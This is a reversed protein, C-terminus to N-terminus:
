QRGRPAAPGEDGPAGARASRSRLRALQQEVFPPILLSDAIAALEEAERWAEELAALEGDLARRESEEHLAMEVALRQSPALEVLPVGTEARRKTGSEAVSRFLAAADLGAELRRVATAVQVKDGGAWNLAPLLVRAARFADESMVDDVGERHKIRLAWPLSADGGRTVAVSGLDRRRVQLPPESGRPIRAVIRNRWYHNAGLAAVAIGARLTLGAVSLFAGTVAGVRLADSAFTHAGQVVVALAHRRRFSRGYRWVALEPRLAPGVRVLEVDDPLRTMGINDTSARLRTGRFRRECEEIAEWREEFPALCWRGCRGCVVWLRGREPDFALRRGIAFAEIVANERFRTHCYLCTSYM